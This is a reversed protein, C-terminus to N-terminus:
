PSSSDFINNSTTISTCILLYFRHRELHNSKAKGSPILSFNEFNRPKDRQRKKQNTGKKEKKRGNVEEGGETKRGRVEREKRGEMEM